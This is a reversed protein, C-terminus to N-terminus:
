EPSYADTGVVYTVPKTRSDPGTVEIYFAGYGPLDTTDGPASEFLPEIGDNSFPNIPTHFTVNNLNTAQGDNVYNKLTGLTANGDGGGVDSVVGVLHSGTDLKWTRTNSSDSFVYGVRAEDGTINFYYGAGVRNMYSSDVQMWDDPDTQNYAIVTGKGSMLVEDTPKPTGGLYWGKSMSQVEHALTVTASTSTGNIRVGVDEGVEATGNDLKTPDITTDITGDSEVPVSEFESDGNVLIDVMGVTVTNGNRDEIGNATVRVARDEVVGVFKTEISIGDVSAAATNIIVEDSSDTASLGFEDTATVNVTRDGDPVTLSEVTFTKNWDDGSTNNLALSDSKGFPSADVTVTAVGSTADSATVNVTVNDGVTINQGPHSVDDVTLDPAQFDLTYDVTGDSYPTPQSSTGDTSITTQGVSDNARVAVTYTGNEEPADYEWVDGDETANVWAEGDEWTSGTWNYGTSNEIRFQVDAVAVNDTVNAALTPADTVEAGDKPATIEVTPSETDVTLQTADSIATSGDSAEVLLQVNYSGNATPVTVNESTNGEAVSVSEVTESTERDNFQITASQVDATGGDVTANYTVNIKDGGAVTTENVDHIIATPENGAASVPVIASTMALVSGVMLAALVVARLRGSSETSYM